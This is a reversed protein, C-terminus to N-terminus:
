SYYTLKKKTDGRLKTEKYFEYVTSYQHNPLERPFSMDIESRPSEPSTDAHHSIGNTKREANSQTHDSTGNDGIHLVATSLQVWNLFFCTPNNSMTVSPSLVNPSDRIAVNRTMNKSADDSANRFESSRLLIWLAFQSEKNWALQLKSHIQKKEILLVDWSEDLFRRQGHWPFIESSRWRYCKVPTMTASIPM